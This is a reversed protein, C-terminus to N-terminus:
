SKPGKRVLAPPPCGRRGLSRACGVLLRPCSRPTSATDGMGSAGGPVARARASGAKGYLFAIVETLERYDYPMYGYVSSIAKKYPSAPLAPGWATGPPALPLSSEALM